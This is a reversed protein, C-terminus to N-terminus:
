PISYNLSTTFESAKCSHCSHCEKVLLCHMEITECYACSRFHHFDQQQLVGTKSGMQCERTPSNAGPTNEAVHQLKECGDDSRPCGARQQTPTLFLLPQAVAATLFSRGGVFGHSQLRTSMKQLAVGVSQM